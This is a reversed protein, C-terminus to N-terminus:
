YFHCSFVVIHTLQSAMNCDVEAKTISPHSAQKGEHVNLAAGVGHGTGHGYDRGIDWLFRRAFADLVFGPTNEPFVMSDLGIHGKLVRTYYECFLPDPEEQFSWTRTVDTTGYVYQGGSDLLIPTRKDLYKLLDSDTSARYHIIAGNSAVGAITPFSLEVFGEQEARFSTLVEDIEVESISRRKENIEEQLWAMFKAMAVGDVIHAERMGQLEAENKVAKMPTVANQADVLQKPPIVNVLAFNSRTKDIWVRNNTNAQCHQAVDSVIVDYPLVTVGSEALHDRVHEVKAADCYLYVNNETVLSYSIGVPCTAIDGTARMNLLYAVDDLAGFVAATARKSQMEKRIAAVKELVSTGAYDIPHVRFPSVPIAPRAAGWVLDVLNQEHAVLTGPTEDIGQDKAADRLADMVEKAFSAPHVYPDMGIRLPKQNTQYHSVATTALWKQMSPTDAHGATQLTWHQADLQLGAENWYRSDTWLLAENLTVIATGASGRFGSLFARRMYAEPVYEVSM